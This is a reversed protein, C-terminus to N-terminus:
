RLPQSVNMSADETRLLLTMDRATEV